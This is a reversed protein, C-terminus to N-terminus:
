EYLQWIFLPPFVLSYLFGTRAVYFFLIMLSHCQACCAGGAVSWWLTSFLGRFCFQDLASWYFWQLTASTGNVLCVAPFTNRNRLVYYSIFSSDSNPPASIRLLIIKLTLLCFHCLVQHRKWWSKNQRHMLRNASEGRVNISFTNTHSFLLLLLHLLTRVRRSGTFRDSCARTGTEPSTWVRTLFFFFLLSPASPLCDPTNSNPFHLM